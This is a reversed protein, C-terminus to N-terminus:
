LNAKFDGQGALVEGFANVAIWASLGGVTPMAGADDAINVDRTDIEPLEVKKRDFFENQYIFM